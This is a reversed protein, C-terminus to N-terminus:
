PLQHWNTGDAYLARGGRNTTITLSAGGAITAGDAAIITVTHTGALGSEDVVYYVQPVLLTVGQAPLTITRPATLGRVAIVCDSTLVTYDADSVVTRGLALGNALQARLSTYFGIGTNEIYNATTQIRPNGIVTLRSTLRSLSEFLGPNGGSFGVNIATVHCPFSSTGAISAFVNGAFVRSAVFNSEMILLPGSHFHQLVVGDEAGLAYAEVSSIRTGPGATSSGTMRYFLPAGESRVGDITCDQSVPQYRRYDALANTSFDCDRVSLSGGYTFVGYGCESITSHSMWHDLLDGTTGNGIKVGAVHCRSAVFGTISTNAVDLDPSGPHDTGMALGVKCLAATAPQVRGAGVANATSSPANSDVTASYTSVTAGNSHTSKINDAGRGRTVTLTSTTGGATVLMRETGIIITFGSSPLTGSLPASLSVTTATTNVIAASLTATHTTVSQITSEWPGDTLDVVLPGGVDGAAFAAQAGHVTPSDVVTMLDVFKRYTGNCSVKVNKFRAEHASGVDNQTTHVLAEDVEATGIIQFLIDEIRLSGCTEFRWIADLTATSVRIRTGDGSGRIRVNPRNSLTWITGASATNCLYVGHPFYIEAGGVENGSAAPILSTLARIAVSDDTVGNGTVGHQTVDIYTLVATAGNDEIDSVRDDLDNVAAALVDMRADGSPYLATAPGGDVSTYVVPDAVDPFRFTPIRSYEDITLTPPSGTFSSDAPITGGDEDLVDAAATLALNAYLPAKLGAALLKGQNVGGALYVAPDHPGLMRAM